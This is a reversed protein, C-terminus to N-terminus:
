DKMSKVAEIFEPLILLTQMTGVPWLIMSIISRLKHESWYDGAEALVSRITDGRSRVGYKIENLLDLTIKIAEMDSVKLQKQTWTTLAIFGAVGIPLAALLYLGVYLITKM